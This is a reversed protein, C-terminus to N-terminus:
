FESWVFMDCNFEPLGSDGETRIAFKGGWWIQRVRGPRVRTDGGEMAKDGKVKESSAQLTIRSLHVSASCYIEIILCDNNNLNVSPDYFASSKRYSIQNRRDRQMGFKM